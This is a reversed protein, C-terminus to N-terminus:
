AYRSDIRRNVIMVITMVVANLAAEILAEHFHMMGLGSPYGEFGMAVWFILRQAVTAVLTITAVLPISDAFFGRTMFSALLAVSTTAITWAGGTGYTLLDEAVGAALGYTAARWAEVRISYWIVAVLILSPEVNRIRLLHMVCVQALVALLLWGACIYWTPAVRREFQVRSRYSSLAISPASIPPQVFFPLKISRRM